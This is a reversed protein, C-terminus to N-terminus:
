CIFMLFIVVDTDVRQSIVGIRRQQDDYIVFCVHNDNFVILLSIDRDAGYVDM